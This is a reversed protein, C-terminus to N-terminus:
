LINSLIKESRKSSELNIGGIVRDNNILEKIINGLFLKREPCYSIYIDELNSNLSRTLIECIKTTTGVPCTSEILLLNGSIFISNISEIAQLVFEINPEPINTNQDIKIPTPVTIIFVDACEPKLKPELM